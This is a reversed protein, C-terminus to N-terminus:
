EKNIKQEVLGIILGGIIGIGLIPGFAKTIIADPLSLLLGIIIGKLWSKMPFDVTFIFLGIAFRNIFAGIIASHKDAFVDMFFMPIIDLIGFTLGALLGNKISSKM